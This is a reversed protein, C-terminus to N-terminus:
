KTLWAVRSTYNATHCMVIQCPKYEPFQGDHADRRLMKPISITSPDADALTAFFGGDPSRVKNRAVSNTASADSDCYLQGTHLELVPVTAVALGRSGMARPVRGLTTAKIRRSDTIWVVAASADTHALSPSVTELCKERVHALPWHAARKISDVVVAVILGAIASPGRTRLLIAIPTSYLISGM